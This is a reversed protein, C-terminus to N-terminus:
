RVHNEHGRERVQGPLSVTYIGPRKLRLHVQGTRSLRDVALFVQNWTLDPCALVLEEFQCGPAKSVEEIIRDAVTSEQAM